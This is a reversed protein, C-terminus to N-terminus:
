KLLSTRAPNEPRWRRSILGFRLFDHEDEDEFEDEIASFNPEQVFPVYNAKPSYRRLLPKYIAGLELVLELELVILQRASHYVESIL